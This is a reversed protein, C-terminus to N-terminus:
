KNLRRTQTAEDVVYSGGQGHFPDPIAAIQPTSADIANSNNEDATKLAEDLAPPQLQHKKHTRNDM